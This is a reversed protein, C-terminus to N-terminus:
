LKLVRSANIADYATEFQDKVSVRDQYQIDLHFSIILKVAKDRNASKSLYYQYADYTVKFNGQYDQPLHQSVEDFFDFSSITASSGTSPM